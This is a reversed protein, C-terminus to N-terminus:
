GRDRPSPSTYLLCCSDPMDAIRAKILEVGPGSIGPASEEVLLVFRRGFADFSMRATPGDDQYEITRMELPEHYLISVDPQALTSNPFLIVLSITLVSLARIGGDRAKIIIM